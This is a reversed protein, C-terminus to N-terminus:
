RNRSLRGMRSDTRRVTDGTLFRVGNWEHWVVAMSDPNAVATVNEAGTVARNEAFPISSVSGDVFLLRTDWRDWGPRWEALRLTGFPSARSPRTSYILRGRADQAVHQPRDAYNFYRLEISRARTATDVQEEYEYLTVRPRTFRQAV